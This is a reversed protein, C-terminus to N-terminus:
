KENVDFQRHALTIFNKYNVILSIFASDYDGFIKSQTTKDFCVKGDGIYIGEHTSIYHSETMIHDGSKLDSYNNKDPM